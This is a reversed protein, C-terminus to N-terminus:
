DTASNKLLGAPETKEADGMLKVDKVAKYNEGVEDNKDDVNGVEM